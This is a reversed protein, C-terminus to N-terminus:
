RTKLKTRVKTLDGKPVFFFKVTPMTSKCFEYAQLATVIASTKTRSLSETTLKRKITEDFGFNQKHCTLNLFNKYNKYQVSCGDSFYQINSIGTHYDFTIAFYNKYNICFDLTM